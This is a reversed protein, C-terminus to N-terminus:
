RTLCPNLSIFTRLQQGFSASALTVTMNFGELRGRLSHEVVTTAATFIFRDGFFAERLMRRSTVKKYRNMYNFFVPIFSVVCERIKGLTSKKSLYNLKTAALKIQNCILGTPIPEWYSLLFFDVNMVGLDCRGPISKQNGMPSGSFANTM